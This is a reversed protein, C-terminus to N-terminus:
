YKNHNVFFDDLDDIKSKINKLMSSLMEPDIKSIVERAYEINYSLPNYVEKIEKANINLSNNQIRREIISQSTANTIITQAILMLWNGIVNQESSNYDDILLYAILVCLATSVKPNLNFLDEM